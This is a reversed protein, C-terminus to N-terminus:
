EPKNKQKSIHKRFLSHLTPMPPSPHSSNFSPFGYESINFSFFIKLSFLPSHFHKKQFHIKHKCVKSMIRVHRFWEASSNSHYSPFGFWVCLPFKLSKETTLLLWAKALSRLETGPVWVMAWLWICSWYPPNSSMM